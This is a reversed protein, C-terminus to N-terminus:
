SLCKEESTEPAGQPKKRMEEDAKKIEGAGQEPKKKVPTNGIHRLM